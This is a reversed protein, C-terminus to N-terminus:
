FLVDSGSNTWGRTRGTGPANSKALHYLNRKKNTTEWMENSGVPIPAYRSPMGNMLFIDRAVNYQRRVDRETPNKQARTHELFPQEPPLPCVKM